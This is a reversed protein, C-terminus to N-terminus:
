AWPRTRMNRREGTAQEEKLAWFERRMAPANRRMAEELKRQRYEQLTEM